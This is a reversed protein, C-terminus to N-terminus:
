RKYQHRSPPYGMKQKFATSFYKVDNFGSRECVEAITIDGMNLLTKAFEIRLDSIYKKPSCGFQKNFLRRLYVESIGAIRSLTEIKLDSETYHSHIHDIVAKLEDSIDDSYTCTLKAFLTYLLANATYIYGERKETWVKLIEQFICYIEDYNEPTITQIDYSIYNQVDLHIVIMNDYISKRIYDINPPFYSLTRSGIKVSKGNWSILADSDTRLSLASYRRNHNHSINKNYHFKAVELVSLKLNKKDFIM